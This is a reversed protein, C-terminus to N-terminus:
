RPLRSRRPRLWSPSCPARRVLWQHFCLAHVTGFPTLLTEPVDMRLVAEEEDAHDIALGLVRMFAPPETM